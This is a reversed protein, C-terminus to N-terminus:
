AAFELIELSCYAAAAANVVAGAFAGNIATRLQWTQAATSGPVYQARFLTATNPLGGGFNGTQFTTAAGTRGIWGFWNGGVLGNQSGTIMGLVVITSSAVLPTFALSGILTGETMTPPVSVAVNAVGVPGATFAAYARKILKGPLGSANVTVDLTDVNEVVSVTTGSGNKFNIKSLATSLAGGNAQGQLGETAGLNALATAADVAGTGGFAIGVPLDPIAELAVKGDKAIKTM